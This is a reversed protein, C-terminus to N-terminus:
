FAELDEIEAMLKSEIYRGNKSEGATPNIKLLDTIFNKDGNGVKYSFIGNRAM